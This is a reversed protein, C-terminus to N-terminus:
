AADHMTMTIDSAVDDFDSWDGFLESPNQFKQVMCFNEFKQCHKATGKNKLEVRMRMHKTKANKLPFAHDVASSHWVVPM